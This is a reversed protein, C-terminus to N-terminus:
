PVSDNHHWIYEEFWIVPIPYPTGTKSMGEISLGFKESPSPPPVNFKIKFCRWMELDDQPLPDRSIREYSEPVPRGCFGTWADSRSPFPNIWAYEVSAELRKDGIVLFIKDPEFTFDTSYARYGILMFFNEQDDYVAEDKGSIYVPVLIVSNVMQFDRVDNYVRVNLDLGELEVLPTRDVYGALVPKSGKYTTYFGCASLLIIFYFFFFIRM